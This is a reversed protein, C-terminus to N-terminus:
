LMCPLLCLYVVVGQPRAEDSAVDETGNDLIGYLTLTTQDINDHESMITSVCSGLLGVVSVVLTISVHHQLHSPSPFPLSTLPHSVTNHTPHSLTQFSILIETHQCTNSNTNSRARALGPPAIVKEFQIQKVLFVYYEAPITSCLSMWECATLLSTFDSTFM